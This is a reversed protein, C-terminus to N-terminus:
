TPEVMRNFESVTVREFQVRDGVSLLFGDERNGFNAPCRGIINWGGASAQPYVATQDGQIGVSGPELRPRPSPLRPVGSIEAPLVGLYGFGPQFGMAMCVFEARLHISIFREVEVGLKACVEELDLNLEYCIPLRHCKPVESTRAVNGLRVRWDRPLEGYVALVDYAPVLEDVGPGFLDQQRAASAVLEPDLEEIWWVSEGLRRLRATLEVAGM